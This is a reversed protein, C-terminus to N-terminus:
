KAVGIGIDYMHCAEKQALDHDPQSTALTSRWRAADWQIPAPRYALSTQGNFARLLDCARRFFSSYDRVFIKSVEQTSM